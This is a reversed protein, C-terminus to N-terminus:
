CARGRAIAVVLRAVREIDHGDRVRVVIDGVGIEIAASSTTPLTVPVFAVEAPGAGLRKTWYELRQVSVGHTRAYAAATMGSDRFAALEARAQDERWQRWGGRAQQKTRNGM